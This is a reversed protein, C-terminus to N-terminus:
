SNQKWAEKCSFTRNRVYTDHRSVLRAHSIRGDDCVNVSPANRYVAPPPLKGAYYDLFKIEPLTLTYYLSMFIAPQVLVDIMHMAAHGFFFASTHLGAAVSWMRMARAACCFPVCVCLASTHTKFISSAM